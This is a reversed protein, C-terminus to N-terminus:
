AALKLRLKQSNKIKRLREFLSIVEDLTLNHFLLIWANQRYPGKLLISQYIVGNNLSIEIDRVKILLAIIEDLTLYIFLHHWADHRFEDMRILNSGINEGGGRGGKRAKIHHTNFKGSRKTFQHSVKREKRYNGM